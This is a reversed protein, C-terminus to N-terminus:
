DLLTANEVTLEYAPPNEVVALAEAAAAAQAERAAWRPECFHGSVEHVFVPGRMPWTTLIEVRVGRDSAERLAWVLARVSAASGDVAVLVRDAQEHRGPHDEAVRPPPVKPRSTPRGM